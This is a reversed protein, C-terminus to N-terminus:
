SWPSILVEAGAGRPRDKSLPSEALPHSSGYGSWAGVMLGQILRADRSAGRAEQEEMQRM